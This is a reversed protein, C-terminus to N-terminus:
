FDDEGALEIIHSFSAEPRKKSEASPTQWISVPLAYDSLAPGTEANEM